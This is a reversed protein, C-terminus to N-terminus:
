SDTECFFQPIESEALAKKGKEKPCFANMLMTISGADAGREAQTADSEKCTMINGEFRITYSLFLLCLGIGVTHVLLAPCGKM